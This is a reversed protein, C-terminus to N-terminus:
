KRPIEQSTYSLNEIVGTFYPMLEGMMAGIEALMDATIHETSDTMKAVTLAKFMMGFTHSATQACSTLYDATEPHLYASRSLALLASNDLLGLLGSYSRKDLEVNLGIKEIPQQEALAEPVINLIIPHISHSNQM